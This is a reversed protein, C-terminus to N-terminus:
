FQSFAFSGAHPAAGDASGALSPTAFILAFALLISALRM